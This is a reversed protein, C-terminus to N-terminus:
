FPQRLYFPIGTQITNQVMLAYACLRAAQRKYVDGTIGGIAGAGLVAVKKIM